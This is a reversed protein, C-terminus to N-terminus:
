QYENELLSNTDNQSHLDILHLSIQELVSLNVPTDNVFARSKGQPLIERRLVTYDDYDVDLTEFM